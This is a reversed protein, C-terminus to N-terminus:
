QLFLRVGRDTEVFQRVGNRTIATPRIVRVVQTRSGRQSADEAGAGPAASM